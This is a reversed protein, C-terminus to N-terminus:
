FASPRAPPLSLVLVVSRPQPSSLVFEQGSLIAIAIFICKGQASLSGEGALAAQGLLIAVASATLSGAGSLTASGYIAAGIVTGAASLSDIGSLTASASRTRRASASLTGTGSLTASGYKIEGGSIPEEAIYDFYAIYGSAGNCPFCINDLTSATNNDRFNGWDSWSGGDVRARYQDIDCDWEVEVCHWTDVALNGIVIDSSGHRITFKGVTANIGIYGCATSGSKLDIGGRATVDTNNNQRCYITVKGTAVANGSKSSVQDISATVKVAKAGEKVVTGQIDVGSPATWGGQGNLDGDDYSNFDDEFITAM